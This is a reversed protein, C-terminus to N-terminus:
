NLLKTQVRQKVKHWDDPALWNNRLELQQPSAETQVRLVNQKIIQIKCLEM